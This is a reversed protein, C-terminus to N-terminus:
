SGAVPLQVAVADIFAAALAVGRGQKGASLHQDCAAEPWVAEHRRPATGDVGGSEVDIATHQEGLGTATPCGDVHVAVTVSVALLPWSVGVTVTLNPDSPAPLKLASWHV